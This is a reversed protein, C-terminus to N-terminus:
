FCASWCPVFIIVLVVSSEVAPAFAAAAASVAITKMLESEPSPHTSGSWGLYFGWGWLFILM